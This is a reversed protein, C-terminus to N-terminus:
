RVTVHEQEVGGPRAALSVRIEIDGKLFLSVPAFGDIEPWDDIAALFLVIWDYRGISLLEVKSAPSQISASAFGLIAVLASGAAFNRIATHAVAMQTVKFNVNQEAHLHRECNRVALQQNTDRSGIISSPLLDEITPAHWTMRTLGRIAAITSGVIQLNLYLLALGALSRVWLNSDSLGGNVLVFTGGLLLSATISTLGLITNLRAEVRELREAEYRELEAYAKVVSQPDSHSSVFDLCEQERKKNLNVEDSSLPEALPYIWDRLAAFRM